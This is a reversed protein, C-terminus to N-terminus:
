SLNGKELSNYYNWFKAIYALPPTGKRWSGTNWADLLREVSNAGNRSILNFKRVVFPGCIEKLSLDKPPGSYGLESAVIFMIQWPGFSSAADSGYLSYMDRVHANEFYIGGPSYAPEVRPGLNKGFSSEVGSVAYLFSSKNLGEVSLELGASLEGCFELLSM